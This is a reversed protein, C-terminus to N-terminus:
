VFVSTREATAPLMFEGYSSNQAVTFMKTNVTVHLEVTCVACQQRGVAVNTVPVRQLTVNYTLRTLSQNFVVM